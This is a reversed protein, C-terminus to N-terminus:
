KLIQAAHEDTNVKTIIDAVKGHEDIVFTWRTTGMYKKGYMNKEGWVGYDNVIKKDVDALLPFPLNFKDAFKKHSTVDDTSVGLVQYGQALLADYNDRLNCAEKTCGPTDDKPYFYLVVKQGPFDAMSVTNGHQDHAQFAPAADGVSLASM